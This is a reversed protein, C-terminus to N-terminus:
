PCNIGYLKRLLLCNRVLRKLPYARAPLILLMDSVKESLKLQDLEKSDVGSSMEQVQDGDFQAQWLLKTVHRDFWVQGAHVVYIAKLLLESSHHAIIGGSRPPINTFPKSVTTIRYLWYKVKRAHV